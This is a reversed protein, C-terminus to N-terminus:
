KKFELLEPNQYSNGCVHVPTGAYARAKMIRSLTLKNIIQNYHSVLTCVYQDICYEVLWTFHGDTIFDGEYIEFASKDLLGAFQRTSIHKYKRLLPSDSMAEWHDGNSMEDLTFKLDIWAKGDSFMVSFKYERM